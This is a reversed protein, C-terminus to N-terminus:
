QTYGPLDIEKRVDLMAERDTAIGFVLFDGPRLLLRELLGDM